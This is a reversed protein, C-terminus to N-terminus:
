KLDDFFEDPPEFEMRPGRADGGNISLEGHGKPCEKIEVIMKRGLLGPGEKTRTVVESGCMPCYKAVKELKEFARDWDM